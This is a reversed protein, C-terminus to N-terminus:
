NKEVLEKLGNLVMTWNELSHKKSEESAINQQRLSLTVDNKKEELQFTIVQYNEPSDPLGSFGSWYDYSLLKEKQIALITGKDEYPKGDWEGTFRIPSGVKWDCQTNTGFLYKKIQDPNILADWVKALPAQIVSTITLEINTM